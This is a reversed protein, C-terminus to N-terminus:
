AEFFRTSEVRAIRLSFAEYFRERGMKQAGKHEAQDRWDKISQIDKWYSVTIGFGDTDRTSEVGLFGPQQQALEVMRTATKEYLGGPDVRLQNAFIVAFYPTDGDALSFRNDM